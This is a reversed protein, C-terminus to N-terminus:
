LINKFSNYKVQELKLKELDHPSKKEDGYGIAIISEVKYNHPIDLIEQVSTEVERHDLGIRNRVQIWCSALNLSQVVLQIVISIISADEIWIDTAETDAIVAIALPANSIPKSAPGRLSGLKSLKEKDDIVILNWPQINKGSPALLAGQLIKDILDKPVAEEKFKRISRRNELLNLM